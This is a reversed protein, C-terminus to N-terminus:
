AIAVNGYMIPASDFWHHREGAAHDLAFQAELYDWLADPLDDLRPWGTMMYKALWIPRGIMLLTRRGESDTVVRPLSDLADTSVQV